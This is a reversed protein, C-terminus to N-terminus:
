KHKICLNLNLNANQVFSNLMDQLYISNHVAAIYEEM